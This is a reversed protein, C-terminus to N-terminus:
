GKRVGSSVKYIAAAGLLSAGALIKWAWDYSHYSDFLRGAMWPAAWQGLSYGMIILALIKGLAATGFIGCHGTSDHVVPEQFQSQARSHCSLFNELVALNRDSLDPGGYAVGTKGEFSRAPDFLRNAFILFDSQYQGPVSSHLTELMQLQFPDGFMSPLPKM